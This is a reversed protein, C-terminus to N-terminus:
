CPLNQVEGQLRYKSDAPSQCQRLLWSECKTVTQEDNPLDGYTPVYRRVEVGAALTARLVDM